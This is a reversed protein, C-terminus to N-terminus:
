FNYFIENQLNVKTATYTVGLPFHPEGPSLARSSSSILSGGSDARDCHPSSAPPSLSLSIGRSCVAEWISPVSGHIIHDSRIARASVDEPDM